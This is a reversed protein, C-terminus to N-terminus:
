PRRVMTDEVSALIACHSQEIAIQTEVLSWASKLAAAQATLQDLRRPCPPFTVVMEHLDPSAAENLRDILLDASHSPSLSPAASRPDKESTPPQPKRPLDQPHARMWQMKAEAVNARAESAALQRRLELNEIQLFAYKESIAQLAQAYQPPPCADGPTAEDALDSEDQPNAEALTCPNHAALLVVHQAQSPLSPLYLLANHSVDLERLNQLTLLSADLMLLDNHHAWVTQLSACLSLSPPLITLANKSVDLTQLLQLQSVTHPLSCLRNNSLDVHVISSLGGFNPEMLLLNNHSCDLHTLSPFKDWGLFTQLSNHSLDLIELMKLQNSEQARMHVHQIKNYSLSLIRLNPAFTLAPFTQLDNQDLKLTELGHLLLDEWCEPLKKVLNHIAQFEELDPFYSVWTPIERLTSGNLSVFRVAGIRFRNSPITSIAPQQSLLLRGTLAAEKLADTIDDDM